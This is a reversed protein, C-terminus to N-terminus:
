ESQMCEGNRSRYGLWTAIDGHVWKKLRALEAQLKSVLFQLESTVAQQDLVIKVLEERSLNETSIEATSPVAIFVVLFYFLVM